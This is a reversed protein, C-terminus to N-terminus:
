VAVRVACLLCGNIKSNTLRCRCAERFVDNVPGLPAGFVSYDNAFLRRFLIAHRM